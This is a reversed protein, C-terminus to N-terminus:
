SQRDSSVEREEEQLWAAMREVLARPTTDAKVVWQLAGLRQAEQVMEPEDYNSLVVAPLDETAPDARLARLLELGTMEPMRMDIFVMDPRSGRIADLGQRGDYAARVRYGDM